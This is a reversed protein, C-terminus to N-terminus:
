LSQNKYLVVIRVDLTFVPKKKKFTKERESISDFKLKKLHQEDLLTNESAMKEIRDFINMINNEDRYILRNNYILMLPTNLNYFLHCLCEM